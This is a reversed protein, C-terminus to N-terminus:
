GIYGYKLDNFEDHWESPIKKDAKVYRHMAELIELLRMREHISRPKLGLPPREIVPAKTVFEGDVLFHEVNPSDNFYSDDAHVYTIYGREGNIDAFLYRADEHKHYADNGAWKYGLAFLADQIAKSHEVSEVKFKM